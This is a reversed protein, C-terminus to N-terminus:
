PEVFAAVLAVYPGQYGISPETIEWTRATWVTQDNWDRYSRSPYRSGHPPIADGSYNQNPGGPVFGPAPGFLSAKDDRIGHNDTGDFYPYHPEVVSSPKGVYRSKSYENRSQGFWDHFIQWSSHEGGLSAMNTLFVMSLPNQGHFYHLLDLAHRRCEAATRSGTAGLQAARLLFVGHGARIGNSGWHYSWAPMGGRYLDDASFVSEVQRGISTRMASVVAPTARTARAYTMAAHTDYRMAPLVAGSWNAAHYADVYERASEIEPDMRFVEAAAWAKEDSDGQGQLWSWTSLAANRLTGAYATLGAAAFVRSGLACSGALVAGSELTPGSYHRRTADTSPPSGGSDSGEAHVRSLVSGDPLQMKLLFDLEWQVEDLLDSVGNRSEPIGLDGDPFAQRNDEWAHLMFLIANSVAYWVYKNYDGADHWGGSLDRPGVDAHGAAPTTSADARHCAAGDAWVGARADPKAIGCRQLYFTRLATRMVGRYVQPAVAFEYSRVHPSAGVLHYTGPIRLPSFDVWWVQDGSAADTGKRSISGGDAPVTFVPAGGATRVQVVSGPDSTFVAVKPDDPRYGFHDLKVSATM